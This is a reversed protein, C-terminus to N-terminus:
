LLLSLLNSLRTILVTVQHQSSIYIHWRNPSLPLLTVTGHGRSMSCDAHPNRTHQPACSELTNCPQWLQWLFHQITALPSSHLRFRLQALQLNQTIYLHPIGAEALLCVVHQLIIDNENCFDVMEQSTFEKANDIRLYRPTRGTTTIYQKLLEVPTGTGRTKPPLHGLVRYRQRTSTCGRSSLPLM